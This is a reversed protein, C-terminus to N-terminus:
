EDKQPKKAGQAELFMDLATAFATMGAPNVQLTAGFARFCREAEARYKDAGTKAWLRALNRAAVSNSSPQAGDYQDKSRAFLKEHDSATFYYGGAKKDGHFEIMTDTLSQAAQLWKRDKTADYLALLGHALYAYDELYGNVAAKPKDGPKAGYTRLLRGKDTLQHKLVFDAARAATDIYKKEGLALGAEAYGAIM